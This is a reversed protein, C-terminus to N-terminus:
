VDINLIGAAVTDKRTVQELFIGGIPGHPDVWLFHVMAVIHPVLPASLIHLLFVRMHRVYQPLYPLRPPVILLSRPHSSSRLSIRAAHVPTQLPVLHLAIEVDCRAPVSVHLKPLMQAMLTRAGEKRVRYGLEQMDISM